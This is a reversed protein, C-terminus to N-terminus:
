PELFASSVAEIFESCFRKIFSLISPIQWAFLISLQCHRICLPPHTTIYHFKPKLLCMCVIWFKPAGGHIKLVKSTIQWVLCFLKEFAGMIWFVDHRGCPCVFICSILLLLLLMLTTGIGDEMRSSTPCDQWPIGCPTNDFSGVVLAIHDWEDRKLTHIFTTDGAGGHWDITTVNGGLCRQAPFNTVLVFGIEAHQWRVLFM